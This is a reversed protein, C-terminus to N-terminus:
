EKVQEPFYQKMLAKFQPLNRINDLDEDVLIWGYSSYGKKLAQELGDLAKKTQGTLSFICAINYQAVADNPNTKLVNELTQEVGNLDGLAGQSLAITRFINADTSNSFHSLIANLLEKAEKEKGLKLYAKALYYEAPLDREKDFPSSIIFDKFYDIAQEM